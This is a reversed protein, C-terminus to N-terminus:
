RGRTPVLRTVTRATETLYGVEPIYDNQNPLSAFTVDGDFHNYDFKKKGISTGGYFIM